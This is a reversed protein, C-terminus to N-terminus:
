KLLLVANEPDYKWNKDLIKSKKYYLSLRHIKSEMHMLKVKNHEDGHNKKMHRRLKVAKRILDLLDQPYKSALGEKKIISNLREGFATRVNGMGYQDRLIIGIQSPRTGKRALEVVVQKIEENSHSSESIAGKPKHSKSKGRKKSHMRAM